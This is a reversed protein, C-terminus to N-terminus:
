LYAAGINASDIDSVLWLQWFVVCEPIERGIVKLFTSTQIFNGHNFSWQHVAQLRSSMFAQASKELSHALQSWNLAQVQGWSALVTNCVLQRTGNDCIGSATQTIKRTGVPTGSALALCHVQMHWTPTCRCVRLIEPWSWSQATCCCTCGERQTEGATHANWCYSSSVQGITLM